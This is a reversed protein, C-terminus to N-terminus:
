EKCSCQMWARAASNWCQNAGPFAYSSPQLGVGPDLASSQLYSQAAGAVDKRRREAAWQQSPLEDWWLHQPFTLCCGKELSPESLAWWGCFYLDWQRCSHMRPTRSAPSFMRNLHSEHPQLIAALTSAARFALQWLLWRWWLGCLMSVLHLSCCPSGGPLSSQICSVNADKSFFIPLVDLELDRSSLVAKSGFALESRTRGQVKGLLQRCLAQGRVGLSPWLLVKGRVHGNTESSWVASHNSGEAGSWCEGLHSQLRTHGQAFYWCFVDGPNHSSVAAAAWPPEESMERWVRLVPFFVIFLLLWTKIALFGGTTPGLASGPGLATLHLHLCGAESPASHSSGAWAGQGRVRCDARPETM